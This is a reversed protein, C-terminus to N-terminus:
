FSTMLADDYEPMWRPSQNRSMGMLMEWREAAVPNSLLVLAVYSPEFPKRLLAMGAEEPTLSGKKQNCRKCATTLNQWDHSGGRSRPLVHDVTLNNRGPTEGCYQCTYADRLMIASRTAPVRRHPLRVYHVLRIVLPVPIASHHSRLMQQTAELMEAKERLLLVVARRVSVLSLPEYSANLVLVQKSM